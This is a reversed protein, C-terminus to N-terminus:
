SGYDDLPREPNVGKSNILKLRNQIFWSVSKKVAIFIKM